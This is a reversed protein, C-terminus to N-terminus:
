RGHGGAADCQRGSDGSASQPVASGDGCVHARADFALSCPQRVLPERAWETVRFGSPVKPLADGDANPDDFQLLVAALILWMSLEGTLPLSSRPTERIQTHEDVSM